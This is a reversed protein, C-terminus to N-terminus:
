RRPGPLGTPTSTNLQVRGNVQEPTPPQPISAFYKNLGTPDQAQKAQAARIGLPDSNFALDAKAQQSRSLTPEPPLNGFPNKARQELATRTDLNTDLQKFGFPDPLTADIIGPRIFRPDPQRLKIVADPTTVDQFEDKEYSNYTWDDPKTVTPLFGNLNNPLYKFFGGDVSYEPLDKHVITFDFSAELYMALRGEPTVDWTADNPISYSLSNLIGFEGVLYNGLNIRILVGGLFGKPNYSGATAAAIQGLNRHKEFLQKRNFCPIQLNFSVSRKFKDYVYFSEARGAYNIENWNGSFSDKYGTMYASFLHRRAKEKASNLDPLNEFPDVVRFAVTMIDADKRAFLDTNSYAAQSGDKSTGRDGYYKFDEATRDLGNNPKTTFTKEKFPGYDKANYNANSVASFPIQQNIQQVALVASKLKSYNKASPSIGNLGPIVNSNEVSPSINAEVDSLSPGNESLPGPKNTNWDIKATSAKDKAKDFADNILTKNETYDYRRITTTGIGYVSKPGGIYFDITDEGKFINLPKGKLVSGILKIPVKFPLFALKKILNNNTNPERDGLNFQKRLGALRNNPIDNDQNGQNNSQVVSLYKSDDGQIPLLGHRNFHGGFANVPVQALTNIGLNYIRTPELLGGTFSALAGQLSLNGANSLAGRLGKKVELRPNSLQLGVQRAIFLPGRPADTFFKGIRLLDTTSAQAAGAAGGRIFGDDVNGVFTNLKGISNIIGNTATEVPKLLGLGRSTSTSLQGTNIDTQIYPQDSNGGGLRDDGYKLSKLNTKLDILAM